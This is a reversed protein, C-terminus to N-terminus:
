RLQEPSFEGKKQELFKKDCNAVLYVKQAYVDEEAMPDILMSWARLRNLNVRYGEPAEISLLNKSTMHQEALPIFGSIKLQYEDIKVLQDELNKIREPIEGNRLNELEQIQAEFGSIQSNLGSIKDYIENYQEILTQM